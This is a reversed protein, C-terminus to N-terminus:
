VNFVKDVNLSSVDLRWAVSRKEPNSLIIEQTVPFCKEVSTIIKRPFEVTQPDMLFKPKLGRCTIFRVLGQLKGYRYLILPVEFTYTKVDKPAFKLIFELKSNPQVIVIYRKLQIKELDDDSSGESGNDNDNDDSEIDDPSRENRQQLSSQNNENESHVSKLVSDDSDEAQIVQLCEIGDPADPNEKESRLDLLLEAAISSSNVLTM